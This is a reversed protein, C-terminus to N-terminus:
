SSDPNKSTALNIVLKASLNQTFVAQIPDYIKHSSSVRIM